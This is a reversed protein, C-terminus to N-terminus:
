VAVLVGVVVAVVVEVEVGMLVKVGVSVGPGSLKKTEFFTNVDSEGTDM